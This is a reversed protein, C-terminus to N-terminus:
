LDRSLISNVDEVLPFSSPDFKVLEQDKLGNGTAICVVLDDNQMRDKLMKVAAIPAASAMEVFIGEKTALHMRAEVIDSDRVSVAFGGSERIARIAKKWSVPNGIMIASAITEPKDVPVITDSDNALANVIPSAGEAQVGIMKPTKDSIGWEKLERFGKWIASINGANGVPLVVYDPVERGLQEYIEFAVTKQGEIRFPNVSNMLYFGKNESVLRTVSKLASDFNGKMRVIKAGYAIAQVLKGSAVKGEPVVVLSRLGARSSYAALSASTNGTSACVLVKANQEVARTIAVSMGRDKFSGTPNQGEYKILLNKMSREIRKAHLLPTNGEGLTIQRVSNKVPLAASYRWISTRSVDAFLDRPKPADGELVIQLLDGCNACRFGPPDSKEVADKWNCSICRFLWRNGSLRQVKEM